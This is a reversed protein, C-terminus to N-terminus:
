DGDSANFGKSLDVAQAVHENTVHLLSQVEDRLAVVQARHAPDAVAEALPVPIARASDLATGLRRSIGDALPAADARSLLDGLGQPADFLEQLTELNAVINDLSQGSRWSEARTGRADEISEGLPRSLKVDVILLLTGSFSKFIDRAPGKAEFYVDNGDGATKVMSVYGAQRTWDSLISQALRAQHRAISLAFRCRYGGPALLTADDDFLVQELAQLDTLAVSKFTLADVDLLSPDESALAARLQRAGTGRKDPWFEVRALGAGDTAPGFNIPQARQWAHMTRRFQERVEALRAESPADCLPALDEVLTQVSEAYNRYVPVVVNDVLGGAMRLYGSSPISDAHAYTSAVLLAFATTRLVANM